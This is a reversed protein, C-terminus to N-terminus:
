KFIYDIQINVGINDYQLLFYILPNYIHVISQIGSTNERM